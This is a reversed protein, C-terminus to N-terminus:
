RLVTVHCVSEEIRCASAECMGNNLHGNRELTGACMMRMSKIPNGHVSLHQIPSGLMLYSDIDEKRM